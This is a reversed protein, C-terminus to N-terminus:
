RGGASCRCSAAGRGITAMTGKDRYKFSKPANGDIRSIVSEGAHEGSQLAVSGLQPPVRAAKADIIAAIDGVAYVEAHGPVTLEPGTAFRDFVAPDIRKGTGEISTRARERLEEVSWDDVAVSVIPGDILGRSELRYLSRFTMVKTLDGTDRVYRARRWQGAGCRRDECARRSNSDVGDAGEGV